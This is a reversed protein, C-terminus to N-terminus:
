INKIIKEQFQKMEDESYKKHNKTDISSGHGDNELRPILWIHAHPVEEGFVLSVIQDTNFAKKQALAVKQCAEYYAGINKVDWVWRYHEKPIILAHGPNLPNIDLFGLFNEDEYIKYCPIEKKIIKCFICAKSPDESIESKQQICNDM